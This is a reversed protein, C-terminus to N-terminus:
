LSFLELDAQAFVEVVDQRLDGGPRDVVEGGREASSSIRRTPRAFDESRVGGAGLGCVQSQSCKGVRICGLM